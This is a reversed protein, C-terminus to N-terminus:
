GRVQEREQQHRGGHRHVHQRVPAPPGSRRPERRRNQHRRHRGGPGAKATV